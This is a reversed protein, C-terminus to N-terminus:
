SIETMPLADVFGHSCCPLGPRLVERQPRAVGTPGGACWSSECSAQDPSGSRFASVQTEGVKSECVDRSRPM